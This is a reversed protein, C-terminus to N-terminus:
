TILLFPFCVDKALFDNEAPRNQFEWAALRGAVGGKQVAFEGDDNWCLRIAEKGM